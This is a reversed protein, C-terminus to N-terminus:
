KVSDAQLSSDDASVLARRLEPSSQGLLWTGVPELTNGVVQVEKVHPQELCSVCGLISRKPLQRGQM